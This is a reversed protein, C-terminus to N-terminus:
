TSVCRMGGGKAAESPAGHPDPYPRRWPAASEDPRVRLETGRRAACVVLYRGLHSIVVQPALGVMGIACQEQPQRKTM